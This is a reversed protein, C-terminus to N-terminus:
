SVRRWISATDHIQQMLNPFSRGPFLHPRLRHEGIFLAMAGLWIPGGTWWFPLEVSASLLAAVIFYMSWIATLRRTYRCLAPPLGPERVRAIQEILPVSGPRLTRGFFFALWGLVLVPVVRWLDVAGFAEPFQV